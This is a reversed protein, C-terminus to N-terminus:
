VRARLEAIVAHPDIHENVCLVLMHFVLDALDRKLEEQRRATASEGTRAMIAQLAGIIGESGSDFLKTSRSGEPREMHRMMLVQVLTHVFEASEAGPDTEGPSRYLETYFCGPEGTRCAPGAPRVQAWLADSNCDLHIRVVDLYSGREEGEMWMRGTERNWIHMRGTAVTHGLAERNLSAHMLTHGTDAHTIICPILGESDYQLDEFSPPKQGPRREYRMDM